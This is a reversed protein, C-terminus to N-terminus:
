GNSLSKIGQTVLYGVFGAILAQAEAPMPFNGTPPMDEGRALVPAAAFVSVCLVVLLVSIIKPNKM